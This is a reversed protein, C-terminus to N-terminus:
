TQHGDDLVKHPHVLARIDFILISVCVMVAIVEDVAQFRHRRRNLPPHEYNEDDVQHQGAM